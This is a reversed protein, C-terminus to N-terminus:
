NVKRNKKKEANETQKTINQKNTKTINEKEFLCIVDVFHQSPLLINPQMSNFSQSRKVINVINKLSFDIM